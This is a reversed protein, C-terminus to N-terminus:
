LSFLVNLCVIFFFWIGQNVQTKPEKTKRKFLHKKIRTVPSSGQAKGRIYGM